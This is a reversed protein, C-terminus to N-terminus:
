RRMHFNYSRIDFRRDANPKWDVYRQVGYDLYPQLVIIWPNHELFIRTMKRYAEGRFKEDLSFRAADGLEDFERHRWYDGIGGPGLLRWMMGDPDALTSTPDAWWLGKFTRDRNKQSRVSFEIVEIVANVGIDKWMAAIAESMAKDNAIYGTTTEIIVPEKRYGARRLRERAERPDYPLPPLTPDFHNDTKVIPGTPVIARERWLEKVIVQRDIALSLAQKLLPNDLPPNKSNVGLVVIGAFLAEVGRTMPNQNVRDWQDPPLQTILDAEGKLLAAVRPATEPISRFIVRDVDIRGDWYDPNADLVLRDDKVWSVFRVPGTGVPRDNFGDPGVESVYKKPVIQGGFFALRAPLLPDPKKTHVVMTFPDPTEIRDITNIATAVLTKMAPDWTRELSWKADAATFPDGNHWRVGERLKFQYTTPATTRWETALGPHLKGDSRRAVLTDFLNFSVRVDNSATSFHPDLRSVDGGQAIVLERKKTQAGARTATAVGAASAAGLGALFKRRDMVVSM